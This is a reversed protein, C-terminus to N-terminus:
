AIGGHERDSRQYETYWAILQYRLHTYCKTYSIWFSLILKQIELCIISVKAILELSGGWRGKTAASSTPIDESQHGHPILYVLSPSHACSPTVSGLIGVVSRPHSHRSVTNVHLLWRHSALISSNFSLSPSYLMNLSVFILELKETAM